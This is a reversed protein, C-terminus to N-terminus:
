TEAQVRVRPTGGAEAWCQLHFLLGQPVRPTVGVEAWCQLPPLLCQLQKDGIGELAQTLLCPDGRAMELGQPDAVACLPQRSREGREPVEVRGIHLHALGTGTGTGLGIGAAREGVTRGEGERPQPWLGHLLKQHHEERFDFDTGKEEVQQALKGPAPLRSPRPQM